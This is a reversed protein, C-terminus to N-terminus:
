CDHDENKPKSSAVSSSSASGLGIPAATDASVQYM